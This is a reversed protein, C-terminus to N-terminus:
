DIEGDYDVDTDYPIVHDIDRPSGSRRYEVTNERFILLYSRTVVVGHAGTGEYLDSLNVGEMCVPDNVSVGGIVCNGRLGLQVILDGTRADCYVPCEINDGDYFSGCITLSRM